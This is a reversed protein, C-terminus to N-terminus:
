LARQKESPWGAPRIVNGPLRTEADGLSDAIQHTELGRAQALDTGELRAGNLFAGDFQTEELFAGKFHAMYLNADKLNAHALNANEFVAGGMIAKRLNARGLFAKTLNAGPLLTEELNAGYLQAGELHAGKLNAKSLNVNDLVAGRLDVGQLDIQLNEREELQQGSKSRRAIVTLVAAIDTPPQAAKKASSPSEYFSAVSDPPLLDQEKWASRERIFACLTELVPWYDQASERSIRELTYIAGLRVEIKDSGLQETAKSFGDTIRRQRDADTQAKHRRRATAAQLLAAGILAAAGIAGAIPNVLAANPHTGSPSTASYWHWASSLWSM